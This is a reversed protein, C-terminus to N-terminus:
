QAGRRLTAWCRSSCNVPLIPSKPGLLLAAEMMFAGTRPARCRAARPTARPARRAASPASRRTGNRRHQSAEAAVARRAATPHVGRHEAALARCTWPASSRRAAPCRTRRRGRPASARRTTWSRACASAASYRSAISRNGPPHHSGASASLAARPGRTLSSRVLDLALLQAHLPLDRPPTPTCRACHCWPPRSPGGERRSWASASRRTGSPARSVDCSRGFTTASRPTRMVSGLRHMTSSYAERPPSVPHQIRAPRRDGGARQLERRSRSRLAAMARPRAYRCAESRGNM